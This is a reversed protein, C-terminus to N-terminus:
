SFSAWMTQSQGPPSSRASFSAGPWIGTARVLPYIRELRRAVMARRPPSKGFREIVEALTATHIAPPLDGSDNLPLWEKM